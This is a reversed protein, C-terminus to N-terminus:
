SSRQRGNERVKRVIRKGIVIGACNVLIREQGHAARVTAIAADVSAESTVDCKAFTGGIEKAIAQGQAENLDLIGVRVGKAALAKATAAGLGSAAGTVIASVDKGLQM